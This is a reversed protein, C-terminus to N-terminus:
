GQVTAGISPFGKSSSTERETDTFCQRMEKECRELFAGMGFWVARPQRWLDAVYRGSRLMDPPAWSTSLKEQDVIECKPWLAMAPRDVITRIVNMGSSYGIYAPLRKMLEVMESVSTKGVLCPVGFDLAIDATLDDWSGGVLLPTWGMDIINNIIVSWEESTWTKWAEAGRYSACSIGVVKERGWERRESVDEFSWDLKKALRERDRETTYLPYHYASPLEPMWDELVGQEELWTNPELLILNFDHMERLQHITPNQLDHLKEFMRIAPFQFDGYKVVIREREKPTLCLEVYPTTRHPWGGAIEIGTIEDRLHYLKSWAWSFDGIGSPLGIRM